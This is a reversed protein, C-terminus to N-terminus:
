VAAATMGALRLSLAWLERRAKVDYAQDNARGLSFQNYFVGTQGEVEPSSALRWTAAAGDEVRSQPRAGQGTVMKTNMFTGPHLATVTVGSGKLQESLDFTFMIQALKSQCYGQMGSYSHELMVDGFDIPAQGLSSVNVIRAPASARVLPLLQLTLLFPALYNVAFHLEYGDRSVQREGGAFLGVGANNILVDLRGEGALVAAAMARVEALSAFDALCVAASAAGAKLAAQAADEARARDRGHVLVRAGDKAALELVHRGVGDTAGTILVTKGNMSM